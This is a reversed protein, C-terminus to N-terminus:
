VYVLYAAAASGLEIESRIQDKWPFNASACLELTSAVALAALRAGAV